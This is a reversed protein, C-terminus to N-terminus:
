TPTEKPPLILNEPNRGTPIQERGLVRAKMPLSQVRGPKHECGFLHEVHLRGSWLLRFRDRWGFHLTQESKMIVRPKNHRM